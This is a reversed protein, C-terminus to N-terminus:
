KLIIKKLIENSITFNVSLSFGLREGEEIWRAIEAVREENVASKDISKVSEISKLYTCLKLTPKKSGINSNYWNRVTSPDVEAIKAIDLYSLGKNLAEQVIENL